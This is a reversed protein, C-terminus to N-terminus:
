ARGGDADTYLDILDQKSHVGLKAYASKIYGRTTNLSIGLEDGIYNASRGRALLLAVDAERATLRFAGALEESRKALPDAVPQGDEPPAIPQAGGEVMRGQAMAIRVGIPQAGDAPIGSAALDDLVEFSDPRPKEDSDADCPAGEVYRAERVPSRGRLLWVLVLSFLYIAVVVVVLARVMEDLQGLSGLFSGAVMGMLIFVRSALSIACVAAAIPIRRCKAAELLMFLVTPSVVGQLLVLLAGFLAGYVHDMFPLAILLLAVIPFLMGFAKRLNPVSRALLAIGLVLVNAVVSSITKLFSSGDIAQSDAVQFSTILGIVMNLVVFVILPGALEVAVARICAAARPRAAPGNPALDGAHSGCSAASRGAAVFLAVSALGVFVLVASRAMGPLRGAAESLLNALLLSVALSALCRRSDLAAILVLWAANAVITALGYVVSLVAVAAPPPLCRLAGTSSVLNCLALLVMCAVAPARLSLHPRRWSLMMLLTSAAIISFSAAISFDLSNILLYASSVTSMASSHAQDALAKFLGYGTVLFVLGAEVRFRGLGGRRAEARVDM